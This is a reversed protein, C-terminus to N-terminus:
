SIGLGLASLANPLSSGPQNTQQMIAEAVHLIQALLVNTQAAPDALDGASSLLADALIDAREATKNKEAALLKTYQSTFSSKYTAHELYYSKWNALFDKTSKGVGTNSLLSSIQKALLDGIRTTDAHIEDLKSFLIDEYEPFKNMYWDTSVEWFKDENVEREHKKESGQKTQYGQFQSELDVQNLGGEELAESLDKIGYKTATAAWDSYSAGENKQVYSEMSEIFKNLKTASSASSSAISSESTSSLANYFSKGANSLTDAIVSVASKGTLGWKYSSSRASTKSLYPSIRESAASSMLTYWDGGYGTDSEMMDLGTSPMGLATGLLGPGAALGAVKSAIDWGNTSNKAKKYSSTGGQLEIYSSILDLKKNTTTLNQLDKSNGTGVRGLLLSKSIDQRLGAAEDEAKAVNSAVKFLFGLPNLFNLVKSVTEKIGQLFDLGAGQLNVGYTTEQLERAIQEDWMHEQISRAVENDLVYALGEDILYKNIQTIKQMEASTKTQGETLLKMNQDLSDSGVKMSSISDALYKFDVRAFADMSVGFISSLGEAVEMFNSSSMSQLEALNTFLSAFVSQPDEALAKLFATNSAGVGSMSRLATANATNGGTAADVVASVISSALDPAIAGVTASVSTLVGSITSAQGTRSANAIKVADELLSSANTLGSSFGGAIVRSSYLLNSAFSELQSNAYAIAESQSQGNKIANAAISAYTSAYSFFDETPVAASLKTAIYAFEEAVKGSLGSQIVKELNKVIDTAAVVESLNDNRLREAYDGLLTQFNTKTYGQTANITTLVNDWVDYASQAASKMINFPEEILAKTDAQLRQKAQEKNFKAQEYQRNAAQGIAKTLSKFGEIAPGISVSLLGVAVVAAAIAPHAQAFQLATKGVAKGADMAASGMDKFSGMVNVLETAGQGKSALSAINSADGAVDAAAGVSGTAKSGTGLIDSIKMGSTGQHEARYKLINSKMGSLSSDFASSFQEKSKTMQDSFQKGFKTGKFASSLSNGVAKGAEKGLDNVSVGLDQAFKGLADGLKKKIPDGALSQFFQDEISDTFEDFLSRFSKTMEKKASKDFMDSARFSKFRSRDNKRDYSSDKKKDRASSQSFGGNEILKALNGDISNLIDNTSKNDLEIKSTFDDAM